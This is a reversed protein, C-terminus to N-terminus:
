LTHILQLPSKAFVTGYIWKFDRAELRPVAAESAHM